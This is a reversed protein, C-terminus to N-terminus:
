LGFPSCNTECALLYNPILEHHSRLYGREREPGSNECGYFSPLAQTVELPGKLESRALESQLSARGVEGGLGGAQGSSGDPPVGPGAANPKSWAGM